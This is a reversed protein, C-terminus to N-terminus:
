SLPCVISNDNEYANINNDYMGDLVQNVTFIYQKVPKELSNYSETNTPIALDATTIVTANNNDKKEIM